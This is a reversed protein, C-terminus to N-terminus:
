GEEPWDVSGRLEKDISKDFASELDDRDFNRSARFVASFQGKRPNRKILTIRCKPAEAELVRRYEGASAAVQKIM